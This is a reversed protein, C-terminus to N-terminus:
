PHQAESNLSYGTIRVGTILPSDNWWAKRIHPLTCDEGIPQDHGGHFIYVDRLKVLSPNSLIRDIHKWDVIGSLDKIRGDFLLCITSIQPEAITSLQALQNILNNCESKRIKILQIHQLQRLSAFDIQALHWYHAEITQLSSARHLLYKVADSFQNSQDTNNKQARMFLQLTKVTFVTNTLRLYELVETPFSSKGVASQNISLGDLAIAKFRPSRIPYSMPYQVPYHVEVFNLRLDRVNPFVSLFRRLENITNFIVSSLRLSTIQIFSRALLIPFAQHLILEWGSEALGAMELTHVNPFLKPVKRLISHYSNQLSPIVNGIGVQSSSSRGPKQSPSNTTHHGSHSAVGRSEADHFALTLLTTSRTLGPSLLCAREFQLFQEADRFIVHHFLHYRSRPLWSRCTLACARLPRLHHRHFDYRHVTTFEPALLSSSLQDIICEWIEIPLQIDQRVTGSSGKVPILDLFQADGMYYVSRSLTMMCKNRSIGLKDKELPGKTNCSINFVPLSDLQLEKVIRFFRVWDWTGIQWLLSHSSERISLNVNFEVYKLNDRPITSLIFLVTDWYQLAVTPIDDTLGFFFVLEVLGFCRNIWHPIQRQSCNIAGNLDLEMRRLSPGITSIWDSLPPFFLFHVLLVRLCTLGQSFSSRQLSTYLKFPSSFGHVRIKQVQLHTPLQLFANGLPTQFSYIELEQLNILWSLPNFQPEHEIFIVNIGLKRLSFAPATPPWPKPLFTTMEIDKATYSGTWMVNRLALTHLCPLRQLISYLLPAPLMKGSCSFGSHIKSPSGPPLFRLLLSRILSRLHPKHELFLLFSRFASDRHTYGNVSVHEFLHLRSAPLWCRSVLCCQLLTQKDGHLYDIVIDVLECYLRTMIFQFPVSGSRLFGKSHKTLSLQFGQPPPLDLAQSLLGLALLVAQLFKVGM